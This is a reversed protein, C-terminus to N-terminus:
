TSARVSPLEHEPTLWSFLLQRELRDAPLRALHGLYRLQGLAVYYHGM